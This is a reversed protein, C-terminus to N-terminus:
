AAVLPVRLTNCQVKIAWPLTLLYLFTGVSLSCRKQSTNRINTLRLLACVGEGLSLTLCTVGCNTWAGSWWKCKLQARIQCLWLGKKRQLTTHVEDYKWRVRTHSLSPTKSFLTTM